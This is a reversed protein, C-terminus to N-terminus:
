ASPVTGTSVYRDHNVGNCLPVSVSALLAYGSDMAQQNPHGLYECESTATNIFNAKGAKLQQESVLM